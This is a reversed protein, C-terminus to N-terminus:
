LCPAFNTTEKFISQLEKHHMIQVLTQKILASTTVCQFMILINYFVAYRSDLLLLRSKKEKGALWHPCGLDGGM